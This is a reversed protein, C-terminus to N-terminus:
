NDECKRCLGLFELSHSQISKFKKLHERASIILYKSDCGHVDEMDGCSICTIHHHHPKGFAMEYSAHAKGANTKNVLGVKVLANLARYITVSNLAVILDHSSLKKNLEEVSLPDKEGDLIELIALRGPTAKLHKTWLTARFLDKGDEIDKDPIRRTMIM